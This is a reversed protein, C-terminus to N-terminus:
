VTTLQLISENRRVMAILADPNNNNIGAVNKGKIDICIKDSSLEALKNEPMTASHFLWNYKTAVNINRNQINVGKTFNSEENIIQM